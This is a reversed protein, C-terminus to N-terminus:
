WVNGLCFAYHQKGSFSHTLLSFRPPFRLLTLTARLPHHSPASRSSELRTPSCFGDPVFVRLFAVAVCVVTSPLGKM